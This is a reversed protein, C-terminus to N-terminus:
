FKPLYHSFEVAANYVRTLLPSSKVLECGLEKVTLHTINMFRYDLAPSVRCLEDINGPRKSGM